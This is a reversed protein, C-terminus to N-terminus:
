CPATDRTSFQIEVVLEQLNGVVKRDTHHTEDKEHSGDGGCETAVGDAGENLPGDALDEVHHGEVVIVILVLLLFFIGGLHGLTGGGLLTAALLNRTRWGLNCLVLVRVRTGVGSLLDLRQTSGACLLICAKLTPVRRL